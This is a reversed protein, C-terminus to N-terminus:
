RELRVLAVAEVLCVAQARLGVDKVAEGVHGGGRWWGLCYRLFEREELM